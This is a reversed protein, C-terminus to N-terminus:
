HSAQATAKDILNKANKKGRWVAIARQLLPRLTHTFFGYNIAIVGAAVVGFEDLTLEEFEDAKLSTFQTLFPVLVDNCGTLVSMILSRSGLIRLILETAGEMDFPSKGAKIAEKQMDRLGFLFEDFEDAPIRSVLADFLGIIVSINKVKCQFIKVEGHSVTPVTTRQNGFLEDVIGVLSENADTEPALTATNM